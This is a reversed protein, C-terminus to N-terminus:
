FSFDWSVEKFFNLGIIQFHLPGLTSSGICNQSLVVNSPSKNCPKLFGSYYDLSHYIPTLVPVLVPNLTWFYITSKQCLHWFLETPSLTIKELLYHQSILYRCAFVFFSLFGGWFETEWNISSVFILQFHIMCRM